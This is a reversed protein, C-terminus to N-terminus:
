LEGVIIPLAIIFTRRTPTATATPTATETATVTPTSTSTTTATPTNTSTTTATPTNTSTATPTNTRTPTITPTNTATATPTATPVPVYYTVHIYAPRDIPNEMSAIGLSNTDNHDTVMVGYNPQADSIWEQFLSTINWSRYGPVDIPVWQGGVATPDYDPQNNWTITNDAWDTLPRFVDLYVDGAGGDTYWLFMDARTIIAGAPIGAGAVDFKFWSRLRRGSGALLETATRYNSYPAGQSTFTDQIVVVDRTYMGSPVTPTPTPTTTATPTPIESSVQRIAIASIFPADKDTHRVFELNLQGDAVNVTLTRDYAKYYAGAAQLVDLNGIVTQGEAKVDFVRGGIVTRQYIEAFRLEVEYVGVPVWFNYSGGSPFYRQSQYLVDDDTNAIPQPNSYVEGGVAGWYPPACPEFQHDASWVQGTSDAYVSGGANVRVFYPSPLSVCSLNSTSTSSLAASSDAVVSTSPSALLVAALLLAACVLIALPLRDPQSLSPWTRM